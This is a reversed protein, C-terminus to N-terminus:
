GKKGSAGPTIADVIKLVRPVQFSPLQARCAALIAPRVVAPDQGPLLMVDAAVLAGSIPNPAGYVRAEAVGSVSLILKEIALPYVKYGGVNITNDARGLIYVRDGVIECSDTTSLWGDDMIPQASESVYGRMRNPTRIQLFGDRIRLEIGHSMQNIFSVPFGELGDHVAFVMGAETSAYTHTVRARPHAAKVRNLTAQDAAEGGMTVQRLALAAMDGSMLFARWFTPTGSIQTVEWRKAADYFGRPNREVPAVILGNTITATLIVQVGAFSSPQYTLLWKASKNAPHEAGARARSLLSALTHAAIKPVGTTGSTMMHIRPEGVSPEIAPKGTLEDTEGIRYQICYAEVIDMLQAEPTSTHAVYLDTGSRACADIARIIDIPHDSCVMARAVSGTKLIGALADARARVDGRSFSQAGKAVLALADDAGLLAGM